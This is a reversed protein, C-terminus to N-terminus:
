DTAKTVTNLRGGCLSAGNEVFLQGKRRL